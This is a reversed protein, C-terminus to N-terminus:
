LKTSVNHTAATIKEIFWGRLSPIDELTMVTPLYDARARFEYTMGGSTYALHEAYLVFELVKLRMNM